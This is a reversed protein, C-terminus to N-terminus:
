VMIVKLANNKRLTADKGFTRREKILRRWKIAFENADHKMVARAIHVYGTRTRVFPGSVASKFAVGTLRVLRFSTPLM